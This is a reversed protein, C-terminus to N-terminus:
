MRKMNFAMKKKHIGCPEKNQGSSWCVIALVVNGYCNGINREREM